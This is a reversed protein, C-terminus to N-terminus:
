GSGSSGRSSSRQDAGAQGEPPYARLYLRDAWWRLFALSADCVLPISFLLAGEVWRSQAWEAGRLPMSVLAAVYGPVVLPYLLAGIADLFWGRGGGFLQSGLLISAWSLLVVSTVPVTRFSRRVAFM